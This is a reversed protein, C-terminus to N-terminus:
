SKKGHQGVDIGIFIFQTQFPTPIKRNDVIVGSYDNM